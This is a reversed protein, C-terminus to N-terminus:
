LGAVNKCLTNGKINYVIPQIICDKYHDGGVQENFPDENTSLPVLNEESM